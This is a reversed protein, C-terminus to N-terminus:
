EPMDLPKPEEKAAKIVARCYDIYAWEVTLYASWLASSSYRPTSASLLRSAGMRPFAAEAALIAADLALLAEARTM